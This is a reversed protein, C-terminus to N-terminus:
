FTCIRLYSRSVLLTVALCAMNSTPRLIQSDLRLFHPAGRLLHSETRLQHLIPRLLWWYSGWFGLISYIPQLSTVNCQLKDITFLKQPSLTLIQRKQQLVKLKREVSALAIRRKAPQCKRASQGNSNELQIRSSIYVQDKIQNITDNLWWNTLFDPM